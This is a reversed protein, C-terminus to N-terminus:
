GTHPVYYTSLGFSSLSHMRTEQCVVSGLWMVVNTGSLKKSCEKRKFITQAMQEGM